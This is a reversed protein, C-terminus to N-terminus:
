YPYACPWRHCQDPVTRSPPVATPTMPHLLPTTLDKRAHPLPPFRCLAALPGNKTEGRTFEIASTARDRQCIGYEAVSLVEVADCPPYRM